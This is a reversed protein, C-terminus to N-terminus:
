ENDEYGKEVADDEIEEPHAADYDKIGQILEAKAEDVAAQSIAKKAKFHDVLKIVGATLASAGLVALGIWPVMSSQGEIRGISKGGEEILNVLKEPGGAAKAAKSLEAYDWAM